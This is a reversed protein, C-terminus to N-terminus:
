SPRNGDHQHGGSNEVGEASINFKYNSIISPIDTYVGITSSEGPEIEMPTAAVGMFFCIKKSDDWYFISEDCTCTFADFDWSLDGVM